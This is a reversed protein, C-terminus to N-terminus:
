RLYSSEVICATSSLGKHGPSILPPAYVPGRRRGAATIVTLAFMSLQRTSTPAIFPRRMNQDAGQFDSSRRRRVLPAPPAPPAGSGYHWRSSGGGPAARTKRRWSLWRGTIAPSVCVRCSSQRGAAEPQEFSGTNPVIQHASSNRFQGFGSPANRIWQTPSRTIASRVAPSISLEGAPSSM